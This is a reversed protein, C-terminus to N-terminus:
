LSFFCASAFLSMFCPIQMKIIFDTMSCVACCRYIRSTIYRIHAGLLWACALSARVVWVPSYFCFYDNFKKLSDLTKPGLYWWCIFDGGGDRPGMVNRRKIHLLLWTCHFVHFEWSNALAWLRLKRSVTQFKGFFCVFACVHMNCIAYLNSQHLLLARASHILGTDYTCHAHSFYLQRYRFLM